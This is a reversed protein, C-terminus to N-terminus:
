YYDKYQMQCANPIIGGALYIFIIKLNNIKHQKWSIKYKNM